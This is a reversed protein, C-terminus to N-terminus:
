ESVDDVVHVQTKIEEAEADAAAKAAEEAAEAEKAAIEEETLVPEAAKAKAAAKARREADPDKLGRVARRLAMIIPSCIAAFIAEVVGNTSAVGFLMAAIGATNTGYNIALSDMFMFYLMGLFFVTNTFSGLISAIADRIPANRLPIRSCAYAVVPVLMRPILMLLVFLFPDITRAPQFFLPALMPSPVFFVKSFQVAGWIFGLTIGPKLGLLIATIIVPLGALNISIPGIFITGLPTYALLLILAFMLAMMALMGTSMKQKKNNQTM